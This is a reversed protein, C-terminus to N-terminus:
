GRAQKYYAPGADMGDDTEAHDKYALLIIRSGETSICAQQSATTASGHSPVSKHNFSIIPALSVPPEQLVFGDSVTEAQLIGLAKLINYTQAHLRGQPNRGVNVCRDDPITIPGAIVRYLSGM